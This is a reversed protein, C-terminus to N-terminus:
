TLDEIPPHRNVTVDAFRIRLIRARNLKLSDITVRGIETKPVIYIKDDSWAFHESWIDRRPNFFAIEQNIEDDFVTTKNSKRRNCHFCALALNEVSNDDNPIIHDITFRV